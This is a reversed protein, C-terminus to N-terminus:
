WGVTPLTTAQLERLSRSIVSTSGVRQGSHPCGLRQAIAQLGREVPAAVLGLGQQHLATVIGCVTSSATGVSMRPVAHKHM